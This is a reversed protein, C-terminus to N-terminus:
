SEVYSTVVTIKQSPEEISYKLAEPSPADDPPTFVSKFQRSLEAAIDIPTSVTNDNM